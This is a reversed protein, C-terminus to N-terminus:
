FGLMRIGIVDSIPVKISSSRRGVRILVHEEETGTIIGQFKKEDTKIECRIQPAHSPRDVFYHIKQDLTMDKFKSEKSLEEVNIEASVEEVSEEVSEEEIAEDEPFHTRKLPRTQKRVTKKNVQEFSQQDKQPTYYHHQMNAKPAGVTPQQIYLLPNEAFRKNGM